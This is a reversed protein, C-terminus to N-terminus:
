DRRGWNRPIHIPVVLSVATPEDDVTYPEFKMERMGPLSAEDLDPNGCSSLAGGGCTM